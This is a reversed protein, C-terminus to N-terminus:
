VRTPFKNARWRSYAIAALGLVVFVAMFAVAIMAVRPYGLAHADVFFYPYWGTRAGFSLAVVLYILPWLLFQAVNRWALRSRADFLWWTVFLVPVLDHLLIDVLKQLGTPAWVHRLLLSYGLGVLAIYVATAAELAPRTRKRATAVVAVVLNTLVTFYLFFHALEILVSQGRLQAGRIVLYAQLGVAAWSVIAICALVSQRRASSLSASAM